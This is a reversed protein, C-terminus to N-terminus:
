PGAKKTGGRLVSCAAGAVAVAAAVRMGVHVARVTGAALAAEGPGRLSAAYILGALAVGSAFGVTRAATLLAGAVGQRDKPVAGMIASNNPATFLGAGVGVLLLCGVLRSSPEAAGVGGLLWAGAALLTLGATAPLRVGVRDSFTGSPGTLALMALPVTMMVLGVRSPSFGRASLLFFPMLFSVAASAVYFLYAALASSAFRRNQFLRLDLAPHAVRREVAVFAVAACVALGALALVRPSGWGWDGGKSLVLLLAALGVAFSAAGAPDFPQGSGQGADRPLVRRAVWAMALGVPVNVAFIAPWGFHETLLGGLGPGALLGLYTLTAQMGLARGRECAPFAGILLSPSLALLMAGGIAQVTRAAILFDIRGSLGCLLSGLVFMLQGTIYLRRRGHIDALRGFVTLSSSVAILYALVVWEVTPVAAGTERAIVPLAVNVISTDLASMFTGSGVVALTWWKPDAGLWGAGEANECAERM